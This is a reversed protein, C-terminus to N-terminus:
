SKASSIRDGNAPSLDLCFVIYVTKKRKKAKAKSVFTEFM